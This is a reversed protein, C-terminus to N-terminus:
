IERGNKWNSYKVKGSPFRHTFHGHHRGRVFAGDDVQIVKGNKYWTLTGAGDAYRYAGDEVYGGDWRVSEGDAPEPNWLWAGNNQDCIWHWNPTEKNASQSVNAAPAAVNKKISGNGQGPQKVEVGAKNYYTRKSVTDDDKYEIVVRHYNLGDMNVDIADQATGFYAVETLRRYSDYKRKNEAANLLSAVVMTDDKGYYSMGAMNGNDDYSFVIKVVNDGIRDKEIPVAGGDAGYTSIEAIQGNSTYKFALSAANGWEEIGLPQEDKGFFSIRSPLINDGDYTYKTIAGATIASLIRDLEWSHQGPKVKLNESANYHRVETTRGLDDYKYTLKAIGTSDVQLSDDMGYNAVEIPKKNKGYKFRTEYDKNSTTIRNGNTDAYGVKVLNGKDDYTFLMQAYGLSNLQQEGKENYLYAIKIRKNDNDFKYRISYADYFGQTAGMRANKFNYKIYGDQYELTVTSFQYGRSVTDSWTANIPTGGFMATIKSLKKDDNFDVKYVGGSNAVSEEVKSRALFEGNPQMIADQYFGAETIPKYNYDNKTKDRQDSSEGCGLITLCVLVMLMIKLLKAM